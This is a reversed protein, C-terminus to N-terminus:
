AARMPVHLTLTSGVQPESEVSLFGGQERMIAQCLMLGWGGQHGEAYFLEFLRSVQEKTLGEGEDIVAISVYRGPVFRVDPPKPVDRSGVRLRMRGGDPMAELGNVMVSTLVQLTRQEDIHAELALDGEAVCTVSAHECLPAVLAIAREVVARVLVRQGDGGYRRSADVIRQVRQTMAGVQEVIIRANKRALDSADPDDEILGARGSVINLPTGLEHAIISAVYALVSMRDARRLQQQLWATPAGPVVLAAPRVHTM